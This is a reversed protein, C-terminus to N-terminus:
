QPSFHSRCTRTFRISRRRTTSKAGTWWLRIGSTTKTCTGRTSIAALTSSTTSARSSRTSRLMWTAQPSLFPSLFAAAATGHNKSGITETMDHFISMVVIDISEGARFSRSATQMAHQYLDVPQGLKNGQQQELMAILQSALLKDVNEKYHEGTSEFDEKTAAALSTYRSLQSLEQTLGCAKDPHDHDNNCAASTIKHLGARWKMEAEDFKRQLRAFQYWLGERNIYAGQLFRAKDSVVTSRAHLIRRNDFIVMQGPVEM